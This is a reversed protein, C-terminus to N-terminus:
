KYAVGQLIHGKMLNQIYTKYHDSISLTFECAGLHVGSKPNVEVSNGLYDQVKFRQEYDIYTHTMKGTEDAPIYLEDNFMDFVGSNSGAKRLMYDLGKQKSLGAVTIKLKGNEEVLYRKAGLTKFRSYTGEYDWAGLMKREGHKTPPDLLSADLQHHKCAKLMKKETRDNYANIYPLHKEYNLMKISDTDAYVYDNGMALIGSWLNRRAYATVWIGWPYYLFRTKKENYEKIEDDIEVPETLWVGAQYIDNDKVIDTVAMGYISNLMGKSLLYETEYGEVDKLTTKDQYLNLISEVISKPLYNKYAVLVRAIHVKEYDYVADIISFDIETITTSLEEASHIRGNNLQEGKLQYCKSESIYSDQSIKCRLNTFKIDMIVARTNCLEKLKKLSYVEVERFRSMPFQEAVMVAPYSSTFDISSVDELLQGSYNANAHTFGGMFARKMIPYHSPEITLDQMVKRYRNFKGASSKKHSKDTYYCANRVYARVRGTNTMPIRNINWDCLDLQEGIYATLVRIDNGCYAREQETLPTEHHRILSYDLDGELKKVNRTTLNRATNALSYGSLILSDRFEIGGTTTAKLPERKDVAFVECWEFYFRMFQFEYALNHVYVPLRFDPSLGLKEVIEAHVAQFEAWTRGFYVPENEGLGIMWVYMFASKEGDAFEISTTEIDFGCPLNIYEIKRNNKATTFELACLTNEIEHHPRM